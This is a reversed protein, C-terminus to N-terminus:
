LSTIVKWFSGSVRVKLNQIKVKGEFSPTGKTKICNQSKIKFYDKVLSPRVKELLQNQVKLFYLFVKM